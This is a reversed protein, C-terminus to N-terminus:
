APSMRGCCAAVPRRRAVNGISRRRHSDGDLAWQSEPAGEGFHSLPNPTLDPRATESFRQRQKGHGQRHEHEADSQQGFYGDSDGAEVVIRSVIRQDLVGRPGDVGALVRDVVPRGVQLEAERLESVVLMQRVQEHNSQVPEEQSLNFQQCQEVQRAVHQHDRERHRHVPRQSLQLERSRRGCRSRCECGKERGPMAEADLVVAVYPPAETHVRLEPAHVQAEQRQGEGAPRHTVAAAIEPGSQHEGGQHERM